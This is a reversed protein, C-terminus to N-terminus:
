RKPRVEACSISPQQETIERFHTTSDNCAVDKGCM